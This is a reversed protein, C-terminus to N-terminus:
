EGQPDTALLGRFEERLAHHLPNVIWKYVPAKSGYALMSAVGAYGQQKAATVKNAIILDAPLHLLCAVINSLSEAFFVAALDANAHLLDDLGLDGRRHQEIHAAGLRQYEGMTAGLDLILDLGNPNLLWRFIQDSFSPTSAISKEAPKPQPLTSAAAATSSLAVGLASLAGTGLFARRSTAGGVPM